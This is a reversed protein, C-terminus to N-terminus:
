AIPTLESFIKLWHEKLDRNFNWSNSLESKEFSYVAFSNVVFSYVVFSYVAFSYVVFSYVM